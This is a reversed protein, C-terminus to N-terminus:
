CRIFPHWCSPRAPGVEIIAPVPRERGDSPRNVTTGGITLTSSGGGDLNIANALGLSAVFNQLEPLTMGASQESRGDVVAIYLFGNADVGAATRPNRQDEPVPVKQGSQMLLHSGAVMFDLPKVPFSYVAALPNASQAQMWEAAAGRGVVAYSGAPLPVGSIPGCFFQEPVRMLDDPPHWIAVCGEAGITLDPGWYSNFLSANNEFPIHNVGQLPIANGDSAQLAFRLESAAGVWPSREPGLALVVQPSAPAFIFNGGWVVPGLTFHGRDSAYFFDANASVMNGHARAVDGVSAAPGLTEGGAPISRPQLEPDKLDIRAVHTRIPGALEEHHYCVSVYVMDWGAPCPQATFGNNAPAIELVQKAIRDGSTVTVDITYPDPGPGPFLIRNATEGTSWQVAYSGLGGSPKVELITPAQHRGTVEVFLPPDHTRFVWEAPVISDGGVALGGISARYDTSYGLGLPRWVVLRENQWEFGGAVPPEIRFSAEVSARDVDREFEVQLASEPPQSVGQPSTAVVRPQEWTAFTSEFGLEGTHGQADEVADNIRLTYATSNEWRGPPIVHVATRGKPLEEIRTTFPVAPEISLLRDNWTVTENFVLVIERSTPVNLLSGGPSQDPYVEIIEPLTITEFSAAAEELRLNYATDSKFLKERSANITIRTTAWPFTEHLPLRAEYDLQIDEEGLRVPPDIQLRDLVEQRTFHGRVELVIDSNVWVKGEAPDVNFAPQALPPPFLAPYVVVFALGIFVTLSPIIAGLWWVYRRVSMQELDLKLAILRARRNLFKKRM